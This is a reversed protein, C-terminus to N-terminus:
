DAFPDFEVGLPVAVGLPMAPQHNDLEHMLCIDDRAGYGSRGQSCRAGCLPAM